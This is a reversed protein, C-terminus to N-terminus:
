RPVLDADGIGLIARAIGDRSRGALVSELRRPALSSVSPRKFINVEATSLGGDGLPEASDKMLPSRCVDTHSYPGFGVRNM